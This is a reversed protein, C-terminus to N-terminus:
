DVGRIFLILMGAIAALVAAVILTIGLDAAMREPQHLSWAITPAIIAPITNTLNFLSLIAGRAPNESVLQATMSAHLTLYLALGVAFGLYAVLLMTWNSPAAIVGLAAAIMVTGTVMLARRRGARDSAWGGALGVVPGAIMALLSLTGLAKSPGMAAIPDIDRALSALHLFLFSAILTGGMQVFLRSAWALGLDRRMNRSLRGKPQVDGDQGAIASTPWFALLPLVCAISLAGTVWFPWVADRVSAFGLGAVLLSALPLPANILGAVWGKRADPVYDALLATVPAFVTNLAVQFLVVGALILEFRMAMAMVAYSAALGVLGAAIPLRRNGLRRFAADSWRGAAINSLSAVISGVILVLSLRELGFGPDIAEIRRPLLLVLLPIFGIHVGLNALAYLWPFARLSPPAPPTV